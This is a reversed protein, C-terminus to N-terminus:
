AKGSEAERDKSLPPVIGPHIGLTDERLQPIPVHVTNLSAYPCTGGPAMECTGTNFDELTQLGDCGRYDPIPAFHRWARYELDQM